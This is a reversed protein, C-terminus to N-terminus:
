RHYALQKEEHEVTESPPALPLVYKKRLGMFPREIVNFTFYSVLLTQPLVLLVGAMLSTELPTACRWDLM